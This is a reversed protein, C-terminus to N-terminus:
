CQLYVILSDCRLLLDLFRQFFNRHLYKAIKCYSFDARMLQANAIPWSNCEIKILFLDKCVEPVM